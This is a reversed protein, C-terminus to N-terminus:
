LSFLVGMSGSLIDSSINRFEYVLQQSTQNSGLTLSIPKQVVPGLFNVSKLKVGSRIDSLLNTRGDGGGGGGGGGSNTDVKKLNKGSQIQSLLDARGGGSPPPPPPPGGGSMM